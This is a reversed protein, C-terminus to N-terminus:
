RKGTDSPRDKPTRAHQWIPTSVRAVSAGITTSIRSSCNVPLAAAAAAAAAARVGAAPAPAPAVTTAQGRAASGGGSDDCSDGGCAHKGAGDEAEPRACTRRRRCPIASCTGRQATASLLGGVRLKGREHEPRLQYYGESTNQGPQRKRRAHANRRLPASIPPAACGGGRATGATRPSAGSCRGTDQLAVGGGGRGGGGFARGGSM